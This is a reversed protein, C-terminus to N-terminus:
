PKRMVRVATGAGAADCARRFYAVALSKDRSLSDYLPLLPPLASPLCPHYKIVLALKQMIPMELAHLWLTVCAVECYVRVSCM